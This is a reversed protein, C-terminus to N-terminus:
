KKKFCALCGAKGRKALRVLIDITQTILGERLIVRIGNMVEPALLDDSTGSVGDVGASIRELAAIVVARKGDGNLSPLSEALKIARAVLDMASGISVSKDEIDRMIDGVMKEIHKEPHLEM